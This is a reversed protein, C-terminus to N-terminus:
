LFDVVFVSCILFLLRCEFWLFLSLKLLLVFSISFLRGVALLLITFFGVPSALVAFSRSIPILPFQYLVFFFARSYASSSICSICDIRLNWLNSQWSVSLLCMAVKLSPLCRVMRAVMGLMYSLHM